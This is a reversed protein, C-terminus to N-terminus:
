CRTNGGINLINAEFRKTNLCLFVLDDDILPIFCVDCTYIRYTINCFARCKRM